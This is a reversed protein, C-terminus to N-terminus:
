TRSRFGMGCHRHNAPHRERSSEHKQLFEVRPERFCDGCAEFWTHHSYAVVRLGQCRRDDYQFIPIRRSICTTMLIDLHTSTM